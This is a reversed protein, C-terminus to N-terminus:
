SQPKKPRLLAIEQLNVGALVLLVLGPWLFWPFLEERAQSPTESGQTPGAPMLYTEYLSVLDAQATRAPIYVGQTEAALLSLPTELLKSHVAQGQYHLWGGQGDPIPSGGPSGLGVTFIRVGKESARAALESLGATSEGGDSLILLQKTRGPEFLLLELAQGLAPALATGGTALEAPDVQNLVRTFFGYDRTLPSKIKVEGAFVLLGVREGGLNQALHTLMEKARDLRSPKLDQALMSRSADLLVMIDRGNSSALDPLARGQPRALALLCLALGALALGHRLGLSKKGGALGPPLPRPPRLLRMLGLGLPLGLGWLLEPNFFNM